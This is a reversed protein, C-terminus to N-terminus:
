SSLRCGSLGQGIQTVLLHGALETQETAAACSHRRDTKAVSGIRHQFQLAHSRPNAAFRVDSALESLIPPRIDAKPPLASTRSSGATHGSIALLPCERPKGGAYIRRGM